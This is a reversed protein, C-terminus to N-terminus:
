RFNARRGGREPHGPGSDGEGDFGQLKEANREKGRDRIRDPVSCFRVNRFNLGSRWRLREGRAFAHFCWTPRKLQYKAFTGIRAPVETVAWAQVKEGAWNPVKWRYACVTEAAYLEQLLRLLTFPCTEM